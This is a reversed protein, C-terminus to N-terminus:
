RSCTSYWAYRCETCSWKQIVDHPVGNRLATFYKQLNSWDSQESIILRKRKLPFREIDIEKSPKEEPEELIGLNKKDVGMLEMISDTEEVNVDFINEM